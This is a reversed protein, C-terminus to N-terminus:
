GSLVCVQTSISTPTWSCPNTFYSGIFYEDKGTFCTKPVFSFEYNNRNRVSSTVTTNQKMENAISLSSYCWFRHWHSVPRGHKFLRLEAWQKVPVHWQVHPLTRHYLLGCPTQREERWRAWPWCVFACPWAVQPFCAPKLAFRSCCVNWCRKTEISSKYTNFFHFPKFAFGMNYFSMKKGIM